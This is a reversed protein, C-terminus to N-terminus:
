TLCGTDMVSKTEVSGFFHRGRDIQNGATQFVNRDDRTWLRREKDVIIESVSMEDLTQNLNRRGARGCEVLRDREVDWLMGVQHGIQPQDDHSRANFGVTGVAAAGDVPGVGPRVSQDVAHVKQNARVGGLRAVTLVHLDVVLDGVVEVLRAGLEGTLAVGNRLQLLVRHRVLAQVDIRLEPEGLVWTKRQWQEADSQLRDAQLQVGAREALQDDTLAVAKGRRQADALLLGNAVRVDAHGGVGLDDVQRRVLAVGNQLAFILEQELLHLGSAWDRVVGRAGAAGADDAHREVKAVQDARDVPGHLLLALVVGVVPEGVVANAALIWNDRNVQLQVVGRHELLLLAGVEAQDLVALGLAQDWHLVDVLLREVELGPGSLWGTM